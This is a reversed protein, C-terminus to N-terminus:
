SEHCISKAFCKPCEFAIATGSKMMGRFGTNPYEGYGIIDEKDMYFSCEPCEYPIDQERFGEVNIQYM